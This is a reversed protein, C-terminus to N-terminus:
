FRAVLLLAVVLLIATIIALVTLFRKTERADQAPNGKSASRKPTTTITRRKAM